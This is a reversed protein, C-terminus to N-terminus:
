KYLNEIFKVDIADLLRKVESPAITEVPKLYDLLSMVNFKRRTCERHAAGLTDSKGISFGPVQAGPNGATM